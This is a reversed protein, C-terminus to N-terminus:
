VKTKDWDANDRYFQGFMEGYDSSIALFWFQGDSNFVKTARDGYQDKFAQLVANYAEDSLFEIDLVLPTEQTHM